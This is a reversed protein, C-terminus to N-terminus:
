EPSSRRIREFVPCKRLVKNEVLTLNARRTNEPNAGKSCDKETPHFFTCSEPSHACGACNSEIFGMWNSLISSSKVHVQALLDAFESGVGLKLAFEQLTRAVALETVLRIREDM